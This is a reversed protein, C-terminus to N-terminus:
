HMQLNTSQSPIHIRVVNTIGYNLMIYFDLITRGNAENDHVKIAHIGNNTIFNKSKLDQLLDKYTLVKKQMRHKKQWMNKTENRIYSVYRVFQEWKADSVFDTKRFCKTAHKSTNVFIKKIKSNRFNEQSLKRKRIHNNSHNSHININNVDEAVHTHIDADTDTISNKSTNESNRENDIDNNEATNTNIDTSLNTDTDEEVHKCNEEAFILPVATKRLIKNQKYENMEHYDNKTFHDSCIKAGKYFVDRGIVHFWKKQM